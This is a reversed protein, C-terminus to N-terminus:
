LDIKRDDPDLGVLEAFREARESQISLVMSEQDINGGVRRLPMPLGANAQQLCYLYPRPVGELRERVMYKESFEHPGTPVGFPASPIDLCGWQVTWNRIVEICVKPMRGVTAITFIDWPSMSKVSICAFLYIEVQSLVRPCEHKRAFPLHARLKRISKPTRPLPAGVTTQLAFNISHEDATKDRSLDLHLKRDNDRLFAM